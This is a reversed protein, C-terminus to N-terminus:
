RPAAANRALLIAFDGDTGALDHSMSGLGGTPDYTFSSYGAAALENSRASIRGLADFSVGVLFAGSDGERQLIHRDRLDYYSRFNAGDPHTIRHPQRM